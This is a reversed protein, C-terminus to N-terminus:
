RNLHAKKMFTNLDYNSQILADKMKSSVLWVIFSDSELHWVDKKHTGKDAM